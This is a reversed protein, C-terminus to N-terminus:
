GLSEHLIFKIMYVQYICHNSLDHGHHWQVGRRNRFSLKSNPRKHPMSDTSDTSDSFERMLYSRKTNKEEASNKQNKSAVNRLNTRM